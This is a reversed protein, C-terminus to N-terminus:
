RFMSLDLFNVVDDVLYHFELFDRMSRVQALARKKKM